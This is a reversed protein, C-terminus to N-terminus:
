DHSFSMYMNIALMIFTGILVVYIAVTKKTVKHNGELLSIRENNSIKYEHFLRIMEKIDGRVETKFERFGEKFGSFEDSMKGLMEKVTYKDSESMVDVILNNKIKEFIIAEKKLRKIENRVVKKKHFYSYITLGFFVGGIINEKQEWVTSIIINNLM